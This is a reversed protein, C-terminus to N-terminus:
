LDVESDSNIIWAAMQKDSFSIMRVRGAAVQERAILSKAEVGDKTYQAAVDETQDTEENEINIVRTGASDIVTKTKANEQRITIGFQSMTMTASDVEGPCASWTTQSGENLLLDGIVFSGNESRLRITFDGAIDSETVAFAAEYKQWSGGSGGADIQALINGSGSILQLSGYCDNHKIVASLTYSVGATLRIPAAVADSELAAGAPLSFARGSILNIKQEEGNLREIDGAPIWGQLGYAGVSNCIKNTGGSQSVQMKIAESIDESDIDLSASNIKQEGANIGAVIKEIVQSDIKLKSGAISEAQIYSGVIEGDQTVATGYPGNYGNSSYGLGGQNWRWVKKATRIDDTDMILIEAPGRDNENIVVYGGSQGTIRSTAKLITEQLSTYVRTLKKDTPGDGASSFNASTENEGKAALQSSLGGSLKLNQAMIYFRARSGDAKEAMVIDGSELAPNGRWKLEGPLYHIRYDSVKEKTLTMETGGAMGYIPEASTDTLYLEGAERDIMSVVVTGQGSVRLLDNKEISALDGDTVLWQKKIAFSATLDEPLSLEEDQGEETEELTFTFQSKEEDVGEVMINRTYATQELEYTMEMLTGPHVKSLDTCRFAVLSQNYTGTLAHNTDLEGSYSVQLTAITEATDMDAVREQWISEMITETMYPNEFALELGSTGKGRTYTREGDSCILSTVTVPSATSPIFEHLYQNQRDIVVEMAPEQYWYFQLRGLRDFRVNCGMLGAAFGLMQRETYGERFEPLLYEKYVNDPHLGIGKSAAIKSVLDEITMPYGEDMTFPEELLCAGDYATLTLNQYDNKTSAETVYFVGLPVYEYDGDTLLGSYAKIMVHDYDIDKPADILEVTLKASCFSGMSIRDDAASTEELTMSVLHDAGTLVAVEQVPRQGTEDPAAGAIPQCFVAKIIFKRDYSKIADQYKETINQM